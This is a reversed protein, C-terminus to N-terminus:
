RVVATATRLHTLVEHSISGLLFRAIAGRGRSGVVALRADAALGNIVASPYGRRVERRIELDPYDQSLGALSVALTEQAAKELSEIYLEPYVISNRHHTTIPTWVTVAILPEGLRDAEAAAFRIAAESVPSGDVGVVVGTGEAVDRDPVVVVPVKAASAIRIGHVGRAPGEDPGRYDSGIVLMEEEASAATLQSVPDGHLVAHEVSLGTARLREAEASLWDETLRETDALVQKEGVVGLAGGVVSVILLGRHFQAARRAAWALAREGASTQEIGVVIRANM